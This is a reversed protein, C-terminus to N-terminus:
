EYDGGLVGCVVGGAIGGIVAGVPGGACAGSFAGAIAGSIGGAICGAWNWGGSIMEMENLNMEMATNMMHIDEREARHAEDRM